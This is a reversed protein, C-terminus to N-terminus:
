RKEHSSNLLFSEGWLLGVSSIETTLFSFLGWSSRRSQLRRGAEVEGMELPKERRIRSERKM